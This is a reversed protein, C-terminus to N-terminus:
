PVNPRRDFPDHRSPLSVPSVAECIPSAPKVLPGHWSVAGEDKPARGAWAGLRRLTKEHLARAADVLGPEAFVTLSAGNTGQRWFLAVRGCSPSHAPKANQSLQSSLVVVSVEIGPFRLASLPHSDALVFVSPEVPTMKQTVESLIALQEEYSLHCDVAAAVAKNVTLLDFDPGKLPLLTGQYYAGGAAMEASSRRGFVTTGLVVDTLGFMAQLQQAVAAAFLSFPTARRDAAFTLLRDVFGADVIRSWFLPTVEGDCSTEFPDLAAATLGVLQMRLAAREQELRGDHRVVGKSRPQVPAPVVDGQRLAAYARSLHGAYLALSWGDAVAHHFSLLLLHKTPDLRVLTAHALLGAHTDHPRRRETEILRALIDNTEDLGHTSLDVFAFIDDEAVPAPGLEPYFEPLFAIAARLADADLPGDLGMAYFLNLVSSDALLDHHHLLRQTVGITTNM